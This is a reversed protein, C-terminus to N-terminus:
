EAAVEQYTMPVNITTHVWDWLAYGQFDEMTVSEMAEEVSAGAEVSASVDTHLSNLYDITFDFEDLNVPRGHGPVVVADAPLFAKVDSLTQASDLGRGALLWPIAPAEAILANGTWATKASPAYVFLDGDTQGFGFYKVEVVQNGLDVSWGEEGVKIDAPVAEAEHIGQDAGFGNEMWARDAEFMEENAFFEATHAHQVIQVDDPLFTNGYAHDGHHSTNVAYLIPKDTEARILDVMQCFLQRNLMTEVVLVGKDGIIFGGSTALPYGNPAYNDANVDTIVFVSDSIKESQLTVANPTWPYGEIPDIIDIDFGECAAFTQTAPAENTADDDTDSCAGLAFISLLSIVALLHTRPSNSKFM